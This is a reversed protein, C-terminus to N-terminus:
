QRVRPAPQQQLRARAALGHAAEIRDALPRGHGLTTETEALVLDLRLADRQAGPRDTIGLIPAPLPQFQDAIQADAQAVHQQALITRARRPRAALQKGIDTSDLVVGEPAVLVGTGGILAVM